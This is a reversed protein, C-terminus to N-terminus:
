ECGKQVEKHRWQIWYEEPGEPTKKLDSIYLEQNKLLLGNLKNKRQELAPSHNWGGVHDFSTYAECKDQVQTFPICLYYTVEGSGMGKTTMIINKFDVQSYLGKRYLEKLQDGVVASMTNSFQHAVDSREIFEPGAYTGHCNSSTCSVKSDKPVNFIKTSEQPCSLLLYVVFNLVFLNM